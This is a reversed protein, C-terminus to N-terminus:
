DQLEPLSLKARYSYGEKTARGWAANWVCFQVEGLVGLDSGLFSLYPLARRLCWPAVSPPLPLYPLISAFGM